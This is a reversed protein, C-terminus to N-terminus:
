SIPWDIQRSALRAGPGGASRQVARAVPPETSLILATRAPWSSSPRACDSMCAAATAPVAGNASCPGIGSSRATNESCASGSVTTARSSAPM